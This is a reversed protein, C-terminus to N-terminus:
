QPIKLKQGVIIQDKKLQNLEKIKKITTKHVIAIKGLSDGPKVQYIKDDEEVEIDFAGLLQKLEKRFLAIEKNQKEIERAQKQLQKQDELLTASVEEAYKQFAKIDKKLAKVSEEMRSVKNTEPKQSSLESISHHIEDLLNELYTIQIKQQGLEFDHNNVEERLDSIMVDSPLQQYPRSLCPSFVGGFFAIALFIRM